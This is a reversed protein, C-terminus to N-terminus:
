STIEVLNSVKDGLPEEERSYFEVIAPALLEQLTWGRTFWRCHQFSERNRISVDTLYVYCREARQYWHFMMNITAALETSSSKDICCTDMWFYELNDEKARKSCFLVKRYGKRLEETGRMLDTFSVEDSEWTHSLIAYGQPKKAGSSTCPSAAM